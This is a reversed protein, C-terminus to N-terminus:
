SVAGQSEAPTEKWINVIDLIQYLLIIFNAIPASVYVLAFNIPLTVAMGRGGVETMKIGFWVMFVSFLIVLVCNFTQMVKQGSPPLRSIFATICIHTRNRSAMTWGIYCIWVYMLRILEESWVIPNRFIWRMVIQAMAVFFIITFFLVAIWDIVKEAGQKIRNLNSSAPM